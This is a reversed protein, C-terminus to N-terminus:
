KKRRDSSKTGGSNGHRLIEKDHWKAFPNVALNSNFYRSDCTVERGVWSPKEFLQDESTLEVEATVLGRNDGFFEDIEWKLGEHVVTYRTKQIISGECLKLLKGADDPPIEYEFEERTAGKTIGKVCIFANEETLRVRVIRERDLNLYGQRYQIGKASKWKTGSVLFKREIEKPMKFGQFISHTAYGSIM